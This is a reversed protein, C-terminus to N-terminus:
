QGSSIIQGPKAKEYIVAPGASWKVIDDALVQMGANYASMQKEVGERWVPEDTSIKLAKLRAKLPYGPKKKLLEEVEAAKGRSEETLQEILRYQALSRTLTVKDATLQQTKAAEEKYLKENAAAATSADKWMMYFVITGAIMAGVLLTSITALTGRSIVLGGSDRRDRENSQVPEAFITPLPNQPYDGPIMNNSM